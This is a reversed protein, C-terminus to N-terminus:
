SRAPTNETVATRLPLDENSIGTNKSMYVLLLAHLQGGENPGTEVTKNRTLVTIVIEQWQIASFGV